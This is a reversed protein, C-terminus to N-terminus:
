KVVAWSAATGGRCDPRAFSALQRPLFGPIGTLKPADLLGYLLDIARAHGVVEQHHALSRGEVTLGYALVFATEGLPLTNDELATSTHGCTAYNPLCRPACTPALSSFFPPM